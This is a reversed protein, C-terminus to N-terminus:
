YFFDDCFALGRLLPPGHNWAFLGRREDGEYNTFGQDTQGSSHLKFGGLQSVVVVGQNLELETERLWALGRSHEGGKGMGHRFALVKEECVGQKEPSTLKKHNRRKTHTSENRLENPKHSTFLSVKHLKDM